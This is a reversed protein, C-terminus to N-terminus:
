NELGIAPLKPLEQEGFRKPPFVRLPLDSFPLKALRMRVQGGGVREVAKRKERIKWM